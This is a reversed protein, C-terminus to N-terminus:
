TETQSIQLEFPANMNFPQTVTSLEDKCNEDAYRAFTVDFATCWVRLYVGPTEMPECMWQAREHLDLAKEMEQGDMYWPDM